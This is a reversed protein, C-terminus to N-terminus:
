KNEVYLRNLIDYIEFKIFDLLHHPTHGDTESQAITILKPKSTLGIQKLSEIMEEKLKRIKFKSYVHSPLSHMQFSARVIDDIYEEGQDIGFYFQIYDFFNVL